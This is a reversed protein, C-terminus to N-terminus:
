RHAFVVSTTGPGQADVRVFGYREFQVVTGVPLSAVAPEALGNEVALSGAVVEKDANYLSSPVLVTTPLGPDPVWQVKRVEHMDITDTSVAASVTDGVAEIRINCLDKLRVVDGPSLGRVDSRALFLVPTAALRRTGLDETPHMRLNAERGEIGEVRVPVPDPVFFYRRTVPDILKRNIAEVLSWDIEPEATSLGMERALEYIAEPRIGRRALGRITVLRPDDWGTVTGDEILPKILRKSTPSGRISFRSYQLTVPNPLGLRDRLYDQLEIRLAFENSRLVHTIGLTGDEIACAFDYVPWLRYRDGQVPHPHDIIRMIAPDRMTTNLSAVDGKLRLVMAGEPADQMAEWRAANEESSLARCPCATGAYRLASVTEQGCTCVYADGQALLQEACARYRDMDDSMNREEDWTLGMWTLDAKIADYYERREAKPNTDDFRLIVRGHYRKAYYYNFYFSLGHGIHPYGNPEPPMRTVVAGDVASPLPPFDKRKKEEAAFFSPDLAYLEEHQAEPGLANVDGAVEAVRAIVERAQQRLDPRSGLIKGVVAKPDATGHHLVANKLAHERILADVDTDM